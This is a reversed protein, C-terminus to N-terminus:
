IWRSAALLFLGTETIEIMAGLMDGTICNMKRRYWLIIVFIILVFGANIKIFSWVTIGSLAIILGLGWFDKLHLPPDFFSHGTGGDPRGYPLYKIGFLVAARSYAPTIFLLFKHHDAINAVGVWKLALCCVVTVLGMAGVRSDKMISLAHDTERQGYLGDATDALGDLHLAGSIWALAVIDIMAVAPRPWVISAMADLGAILLGIALGCVPFFPLAARANFGYGSLWPIITLFQLSSIAGQFISNRHVSM